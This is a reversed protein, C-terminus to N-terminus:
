IGFDAYNEPGTEEEDPDRSHEAITAEARRTPDRLSAIYTSREIRRQEWLTKDVETHEM